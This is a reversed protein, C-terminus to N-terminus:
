AAGVPLGILAGLVGFRVMVTGPGVYLLDGEDESAGLILGLLAGTVFGKAAGDALGRGRDKFRIFAVDRILFFGTGKGRRDAASIHTMLPDLRYDEPILTVYEDYLLSDPVIRCSAILAKRGDVFSVVTRKEGLIRNLEEYAGPQDGRGINYNHSCGALMGLMALVLLVRGQKM